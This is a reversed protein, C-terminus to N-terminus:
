EDPEEDVKADDSKSKKKKEKKEKKETKDKKDKKKDKKDKKDKKEKKSKKKTKKEEDDDDAVVEDVDMKTDDEVAPEAVPEEITLEEIAPQEFVPEEVAEPAPKRDPKKEAVKPGRQPLSSPINADVEKMWLKWDLRRTKWMDGKWNRWVSRGMWSDRLEAEHEGLRAMFAEKMHFPISREKGKSPVEVIANILNHGFQSVALEHTHPLIASAISKHFAPNSSSISLATTLVTVTPM